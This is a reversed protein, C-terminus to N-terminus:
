TGNETGHSDFFDKLIDKEKPYKHIEDMCLWRKEGVPNVDLIDRLCFFNDIV